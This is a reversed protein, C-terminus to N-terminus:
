HLVNNIKVLSKLYNQTNMLKLIIIHIIKKIDKLEISGQLERSVNIKGLIKVDINIPTKIAPFKKRLYKFLTAIEVANDPKAKCNDLIEKTTKPFLTYAM